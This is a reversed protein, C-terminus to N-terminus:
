GAITNGNKAQKATIMTITAFLILLPTSAYGYSLKTVCETMEAVLICIAPIPLMREWMPRNSSFMLRYSASLFLGVFWLYLGLGLIGIEILIQLPICHIHQFEMGAVEYYEAFMTEVNSISTGFLFVSPHDKLLAVGAKWIYQRNNLLNKVGSRHVAHTVATSIEEVGIDVSEAHAAQIFQQHVNGSIADNFIPVIGTIGFYCIITCVPVILLVILLQISIVHKSIQSPKQKICNCIATCIAISAILGIGGGTCLIANRSDTLALAVVMPPMMLFYFLKKWGHTMGIGICVMMVSICLEEGVGTYYKFLWLRGYVADLGIMMSSQMSYMITGHYAAYIGICSIGSYIIGWSFILTRLWRKLSCEDLILGQMGLVILVFVARQLSDIEGSITEWGHFLSTGIVIPFFLLLPRTWPHSRLDAHGLLIGAMVCEIGPLLLNIQDSGWFEFRSILEWLILILCSASFWQQWTVKGLRYRKM